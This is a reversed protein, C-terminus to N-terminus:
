AQARREDFRKQKLAKVRERLAQMERKEKMKIDFTKKALSVHLGSRSSQKKWPKGCKPKGITTKTKSGLSIVGTVKADSALNLKSEDYFKM